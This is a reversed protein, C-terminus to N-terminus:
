SPHDRREISGEFGCLAKGSERRAANDSRKIPSLSGGQEGLGSEVRSAEQGM